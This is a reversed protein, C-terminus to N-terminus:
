GILIVFMLYLTFNLGYFSKLRYRIVLAKTVTRNSSYILVILIV